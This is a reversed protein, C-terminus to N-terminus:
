LPHYSFLPSTVILLLGVRDPLGELLSPREIPKAVFIGVSQVRQVTALV